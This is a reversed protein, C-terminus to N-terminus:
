PSRSGSLLRSRSEQQYLTPVGVLQPFKRMQSALQARRCQVAEDLQRGAGLQDYFAVSFERAADNHIPYQMAVVSQVGRSILEPALGVFRFSTDARGGECTHLVM